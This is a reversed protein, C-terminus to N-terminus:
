YGALFPNFGGRRYPGERMLLDLGLSAIDDVLPEIAADKQQQLIKVWRQCRDCTEAKVTGTGGEIEQYGIGGTSSCLVCKIRVVNWLAGCLFCHCFRAGHAGPWGVVMSCSPSGGCAPCLGDGVPVLRAPALSGALRVFHVQMAAAVYIHEALTEAPLVESYVNLVMVEHEESQLTAVRALAETAAKPGEITKLQGFFRDFTEALAPDKTIRRRDLPPMGFENARAIAEADPHDIGPSDAVVTHQAEALQALFTLYPALAHAKAWARLRVARTAFVRLPDPPVFFPPASVEGIATPDPLVESKQAM